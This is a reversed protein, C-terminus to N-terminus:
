AHTKIQSNISISINVLIYVPSNYLNHRNPKVSIHDQINRWLNIKNAFDYVTPKNDEFQYWIERSLGTLECDEPPDLTNLVFDANALFKDPDPLNTAEHEEQLRRSKAAKGNPM